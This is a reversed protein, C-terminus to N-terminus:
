GEAQSRDEELRGLDIRGNPEKIFGHVVTWLMKWLLFNVYISTIIQKIGVDKM